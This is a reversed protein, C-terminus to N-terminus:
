QVIGPVNVHGSYIKTGQTTIYLTQLDKGGFAMGTPQEPVNITGIKSGDAKLV